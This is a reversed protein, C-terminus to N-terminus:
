WVPRRRAADELATIVDKLKMIEVADTGGHFLDAILRRYIRDAENELRNTEVWYEALGKLTRLRPMAEAALLASRQLIDVQSTVLEPLRDVRYLVILDGAEEMHDM